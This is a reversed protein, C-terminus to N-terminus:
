GRERVQECGRTERDTYSSFSSSYCKRILHGYNLMKQISPLKEHSKQGRYIDKLLTKKFHEKRFVILTDFLKILILGSTRDTRIQTWVTQM